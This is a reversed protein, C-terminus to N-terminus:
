FAKWVTVGKSDLQNLLEAITRNTLPHKVRAAIESLPKLVFAREVMYPHPVKLEPFDTVEQDIMLIDIDITRPGWHSQRVRKLAKEIAQTHSLFSQPDLDSVAILCLNLFDDQDTKGWAATEYLASVEEITTKPMHSIATVASRLFQERDGINSGLSLYFRKM